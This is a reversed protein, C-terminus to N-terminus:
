LGRQRGIRYLDEFRDVVLRAKTRLRRQVAEYEAYTAGNDHPQHVRAEEYDESDDPVHSEGAADSHFDLAAEHFAKRAAEVKPDDFYETHGWVDGFEAVMRLRSWNWRKGDFGHRLLAIEGTHRPFTKEFRAFLTRDRETVKPVKSRASWWLDVLLVIALVLVVSAIYLLRGNDDAWIRVPEAWVLATLGVMLLVVEGVWKFFKM